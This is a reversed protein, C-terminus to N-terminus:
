QLSVLVLVFGKGNKLGTMAKGLVAGHANAHDTVKMAHGPTNATTLLDGPEIPNDAADCYVWVRGSLAIAPADEQGPRNGLIAGARLGNAGSVVGAVRRNYAGRAVRLQGPRDPDIEMVMGPKASESVPFKEALDAGTIQLVTVNTTGDNLVQFVLGNPNFGRILDGTGNNLVLNADTSNTTSFIGIGSANTNNARIAAGGIGAGASEGWVGIGSTTVLGYVGRGTVATGYVGWGSDAQSGYVGIGNGGTGNNIGRVGASLTGPGTSSVVGRVGVAYGSRSDPQGLVGPSTGNLLTLIGSVGTGSTARGEVGIGMTARGLIAVSGGGEGVVDLRTAPSRTGIGVNDSFYGRGIFYGGYGNPSNTEGRVGYNVGSSHTADGFVGRGISSLSRGWVGNANGGASIARGHVGAAFNNTSQTVGRVGFRQGTTATSQGLIAEGDNSDASMVTLPSGPGTTGIGVNGNAAVNIGRTALSFPTPTLKQRPTLTQFQGQGAPSRVAIQLWTGENTTYPAVGFDLLSTFLGDVVNVANKAVIPGIQEGGQEADWLTFQFDASDNVPEDNKDVRGQYTFATGVPDAEATIPHIVLYAIGLVCVWTTRRVM